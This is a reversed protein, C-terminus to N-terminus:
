EKNCNDCNGDCNHVGKALNELLNAKVCELFGIMEYGNCGTWFATDYIIKHAFERKEDESLKDIHKKIAEQWEEVPTIKKSKPM